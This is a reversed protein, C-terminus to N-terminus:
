VRKSWTFWSTEALSASGSRPKMARSNTSHLWGRVLGPLRFSYTRQLPGYVKTMLAPPRLLSGKPLM